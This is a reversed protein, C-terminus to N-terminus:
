KTTKWGLIDDVDISNCHVLFHYIHGYLGTKKMNDNTFDKSINGLCLSYPKIESDNAKFQYIKVGNVFLFCSSGNCHLSLCSTLELYYQIKVLGM